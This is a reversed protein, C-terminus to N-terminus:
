VPEREGPPYYDGTTFAEGDTHIVWLSGKKAELGSGMKMGLDALSRLLPPIIDGHSCLVPSHPAESRLLDLVKGIPSGEALTNETEVVLGHDTAIPEVTQQCRVAPSSLVKGIESDHLLEVLHTVQRQGRDSIPRLRDDGNWSSRSGAHAHRVLYIAM